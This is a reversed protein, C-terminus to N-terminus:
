LKDFLEVPNIKFQLMNAIERGGDGGKRQMTIKGIKLSGKNTIRVDGSGFINLVHNIHKLVWKPNENKKKLAVLMWNVPFEDNGKLIDSIILIKNKSFFDIVLGQTKANMEDLFMRRTDRLKKRKPKTEGTFLKLAIVIEKPINWMSVYKDIWRKDIQNFGQTSSVLKVSLNEAAIAEKFYITIQVQVDTKHSGTIIIAKVKEIKKLDYGMIKLWEQADEDNTWNNFKKVIDKENRFGRKATRSGLKVGCRKSLKTKGKTNINKHKSNQGFPAPNILKKKTM